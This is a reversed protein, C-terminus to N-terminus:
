VQGTARSQRARWRPSCFWIGAARWLRSAIITFIAAATSSSGWRRVASTFSGPACSATRNERMHCNGAVSTVPLSGWPSSRLWKVGVSPMRLAVNVGSGAARWATVKRLIVRSGNRASSGSSGAPGRMRAIGSSFSDLIGTELAVRLIAAATRRAGAAPFAGFRSGRRPRQAFGLPHGLHRNGVQTKHTKSEAQDQTDGDSRSGGADAGRSM